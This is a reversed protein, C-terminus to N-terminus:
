KYVPQARQQGKMGVLVRIHKKKPYALEDSFMNHTTHPPPIFIRTPNKNVHTNPLIEMCVLM